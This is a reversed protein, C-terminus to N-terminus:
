DIRGVARAARQLHDRSAQLRSRWVESETDAFELRPTGGVVVLVPRGVRLVINRLSRQVSPPLALRSTAASPTAAAEASPSDLLARLEDALPGDATEITSVLARLWDDFDSM